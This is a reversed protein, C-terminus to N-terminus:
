LEKITEYTRVHETNTDFLPIGIFNEPLKSIDIKANMLLNAYNAEKTKTNLRDAYVSGYVNGKLEMVGYCYITGVVTASDDIFLTSKQATQHNMNNLIIGGILVSKKGITINASDKPQQILISSPYQLTVNDEIIVATSAIIQINGSFGEEVVVKKAKIIVDELKMNRRVVLTGESQFIINGKVTKGSLFSLDNTIHVQTAKDFTRVYTQQKEIVEFTSISASEIATKTDLNRLKPLREESTKQIGQVKINTKEGHINKKELIGKPIYIDGTITVNGAVNLVRDYDSVYLATTPKIIEGVLVNKKVTDRKHYTKASLVKYFGWDSVKMNSYIHDSFINTQLVEEKTKSINSLMLQIASDNTLQLQTKQLIRKQFLSNYSSMLLMGFCLAGILLCVFVAQLLSSAKLKKLM